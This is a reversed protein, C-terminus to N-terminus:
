SVQMRVKKASKSIKTKESVAGFANVPAPKPGEGGM